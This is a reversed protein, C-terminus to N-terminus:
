LSPVVTPADTGFDGNLCYRSRLNALQGWNTPVHRRMLWENVETQTILLLNPFQGDVPGSPVRLRKFRRIGDRPQRDHLGIAFRSAGLCGGGFCDEFGTGRQCVNAM